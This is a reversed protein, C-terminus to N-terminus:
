RGPGYRKMHAGHCDACSQILESYVAVRSQTVGAQRAQGALAHIHKESQM